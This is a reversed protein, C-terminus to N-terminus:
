DSLLGGSCKKFIALTSSASGALSWAPRPRTTLNGAVNTRRRPGCSVFALEHIMGSSGRFEVDAPIEFGQGNINFEAYGYNRATSHIQGPAGRFVFPNPPGTRGRLATIVGLERVARLCLGFIYAEYAKEEVRQALHFRGIGLPHNLLTDIANELDVLTAM